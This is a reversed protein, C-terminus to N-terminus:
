PVIETLVLNDYVQMFTKKYFESNILIINVMHPASITASYGLSQPSDHYPAYPCYNKRDVANM